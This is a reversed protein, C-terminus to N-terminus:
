VECVITNFMEKLMVRFGKGYRKELETPTLATTIHLKPYKQDFRQEYFHEVIDYVVDCSSGFHKAIPERGINDLCLVKAHPEFHTIITEYGKYSFNQALVRSNKIECLKRREFFFQILRIFATKGTKAEGMFLLGKDPSLNFKAKMDPDEIAYAILQHFIHSQKPSLMFHSGFIVKGRETIFAECRKHDYLKLNQDVLVDYTDDLEFKYPSM